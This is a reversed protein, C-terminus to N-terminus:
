LMLFFSICLIWYCAHFRRAIHSPLEKSPTELLMLSLCDSLSFRAFEWIWYFRTTGSYLVDSCPGASVLEFWPLAMPSLHLWPCPPFPPWEPTHMCPL